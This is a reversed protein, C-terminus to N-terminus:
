EPLCLNTRVIFRGPEREIQIISAYKEAVARMVKLGFGHEKPNDKEMTRAADLAEKRDVSNECEVFLFRQKKRIELNIYAGTRDEMRMCAEIANELMNSLLSNLDVDDVELRAPVHIHSQVAIGEKKAQNLRIGVISNVVVNGSYATEAFQDTEQILKEIYEEAREVEQASLLSHLTQMHHRMEHKRRRSDEDVQMIIEYSERVFRGHEEMRLQNRWAEARQHIFEGITMLTMAYIIVSSVMAALPVWDGEVLNVIQLPLYTLVGNGLETSNQMATIWFGALVFLLTRGVPLKRKERRGEWLELGLLLLVCLMLAIAEVTRLDVPLWSAAKNIRGQLGSYFGMTSRYANVVFFVMYMFFLVIYKPRFGGESLSIMCGGALMVMIVGWLVQWLMPVVSGVAGYAMLTTVGFLEPSSLTGWEGMGPYYAIMTLTKGAYDAPLAVTVDKFENERGTEYVFDEEDLILFGNADRRSGQIDSYLLRDDLFLEMGRENYLLHLSEDVWFGAETIVRSRRAADYIEGPFEYGYEGAYRPTASVAKDPGTRLEYGGWGHSDAKTDSLYIEQFGSHSFTFFTWVVLSVAALMPLLGLISVTRKM